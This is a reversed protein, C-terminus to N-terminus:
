QAEQIESTGKTREKKHAQAPEEPEKTLIDQISQIDTSITEFFENAESIRALVDASSSKVESVILNKHEELLVHMNSLKKNEEQFAVAESQAQALRGELGEAQVHLSDRDQQLSEILNFKTATEIEKLKKEQKQMVKELLFNSHAFNLLYLITDPTSDRFLAQITDMPLHSVHNICLHLPENLNPISITSLEKCIACTPM